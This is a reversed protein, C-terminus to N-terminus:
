RLGSDRTHQPAPLLSVTFGLQAENCIPCAKTKIGVLQRDPSWGTNDEDTYGAPIHNMSFWLVPPWTSPAAGTPM